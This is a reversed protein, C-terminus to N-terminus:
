TLALYPYQQNAFRYSGGFRFWDAHTAHDKVPKELSSWAADLVRGDQLEIWTHGVSRGVGTSVAGNVLRFPIDLKNLLCAALLAKQICYGEGADLYKELGVVDMMQGTSRPPATVADYAASQHTSQAATADVPTRKVDWEFEDRGDNASSGATWKILRNTERRIFDLQGAQDTPMRAIIADLRKDLASGKRLDVGTFIRTLGGDDIIFRQPLKEAFPKSNTDRITGPVDATPVPTYVTIAITSPTVRPENYRHITSVGLGARSPFRPAAPSTSPVRTLPKTLTPTRALTVPM